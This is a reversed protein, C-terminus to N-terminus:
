APFLYLICLSAWIEWIEMLIKILSSIKETREGRKQEKEDQICTKHHYGWYFHM